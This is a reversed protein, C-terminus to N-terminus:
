GGTSVTKLVPHDAAVVSQSPAAEATAKDTVITQVEPLSITAAILAQKASQAEPQGATTALEQVRAVQSTPSASKAAKISGYLVGAAAILQVLTNVTDGLSSILAKVQDMSVGKAQLGFITVAVGAATIVHRSIADVQSKTPLSLNM